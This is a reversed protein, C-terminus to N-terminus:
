LPFSPMARLFAASSAHTALLEYAKGTRTSGLGTVCGTGRNGVAATRDHLRSPVVAHRPRNGRLREGSM